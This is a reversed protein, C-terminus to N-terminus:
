RRLGVDSATAVPRLAIRPGRRLAEAVRVPDPVKADYMSDVRRAGFLARMPSIARAWRLVHRLYAAREAHAQAVTAYVPSRRLGKATEDEDRAEAELEFFRSPIRGIHLSKHCFACLVLLNCPRNDTDPHAEGRGDLHHIHLSRRSGCAFCKGGSAVMVAQRTARSMRPM